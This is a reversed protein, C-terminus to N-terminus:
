GQFNPEDWVAIRYRNGERGIHVCLFPDKVYHIQESKSLYEVSFSVPVKERNCEEQVRVAMELASVPVVGNYHILNTHHWSFSSLFGVRVPSTKKLERRQYEQVAETEFPMIDLKSLVALLKMGQVNEALGSYRLQAEVKTGLKELENLAPLAFKMKPFNMTLTNM